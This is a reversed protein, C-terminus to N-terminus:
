KVYKSVETGKIMRKYNINKFTFTMTNEVNSYSINGISCIIYIKLRKDFFLITNNSKEIKSNEWLSRLYGIAEDKYDPINLTVTIDEYSTILENIDLKFFLRADQLIKKNKIYMTSNLKTNKDLVRDKSYYVWTKNRLNFLNRNIGLYLM